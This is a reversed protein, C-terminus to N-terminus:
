DDWYNKKPPPDGEPDFLDDPDPYLNQEVLSKQLYEISTQAELAALRDEAWAIMRKYEPPLAESLPIASVTLKLDAVEARAQALSTLFEHRCQERAKRKEALDRRHALNARRRADERNKDDREKQVILNVRYSEVIAGVCHEIPKADSDIWNKRIGEANGFIQFALRGVYVNEHFTWGHREQTVRKKPSTIQFDVAANGDAFQVRSGSGSFSIEFPEFASALRSLFSVVRPISDRHVKVWRLQVTGERDPVVGRLETAFARLSSHVTTAAPVAPAPAAQVVEVTPKRGRDAEAIELRASKTAEIAFAVYPNTARQVGGIYVTELEPSYMKRLPTKTVKQGSELKAWYGRGPVPVQNRECIKSLGRDSVGFEDALKVIPISWVLEYLEGRTLTSKRQEM